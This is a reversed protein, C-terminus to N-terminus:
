ALGSDVNDQREASAKSLYSKRAEKHRKKLATLLLIKAKSPDKEVIVEEKDEPKILDKKVLEEARKHYHELDTQVKVKEETKKREPKSLLRIKKVM